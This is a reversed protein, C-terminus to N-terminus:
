ADTATLRWSLSREVAAQVASAHALDARLAATEADRGALVAHVREWDEARQSLLAHLHDAQADRAALQAELAAQYTWGRHLDDLADDHEHRLADLEARVADAAEVRTRYSQLAAVEDQLGANRAEAARQAALAQTAEFHDMWREGFQGFRDRLLAVAEPGADCLARVGPPM